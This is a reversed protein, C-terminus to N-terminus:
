TTRAASEGWDRTDQWQMIEQSVEDADRLAISRSWYRAQDLKAIFITPIRKGKDELVDFVRAIRRFSIVQDSDEMLLSHVRRLRETLQGGELTEVTISKRGPWDLHIAVLRIPLLQQLNSSEEFITACIAKDEGFGACLVQLFWDCYDHLESKGEGQDSCRRTPLRGPSNTRGKFDPLTYQLADEVLVWEAAKLNFLERIRQDVNALKKVGKLLGKNPRPCPVTLLDPMNPSPRYGAFRASSLLLYYVALNSNYSLCASELITREHEEAHITIYSDSCIVGVNPPDVIAAQFRGHEITWAQKIILQQPEFASFDTSDKDHTRPDNNKDLKWPDLFLLADKPFNKGLLPRGLITRQERKRNGRIIGRRIQIKDETKYNALTPWRQLWQLLAVDRRGGWMLTTWVVPNDSAEDPNLEHIDYPDIVIRYENDGRGQTPKPIIYTLSEGSPSIPCFMILAAPGIAEPFIDFRLAALNVVEKVQFTEFLRKRLQQAPGTSNFLLTNCSQLVSVRGAPKTLAAAKAMFLSGIDGYSAPWEYRHAWEQAVSSSRLTNKGWPPNGVVVDYQQTDEKTSIGPTDENFFDQAILRRGRLVPFRIQQWYHRPEIEDCMALYLSFSAVRVAHANTDVGFLNNELLSRLNDSGIRRNPHAQKWRYVLRQFTKVLFIGSGCAPDLIKLDWEEGRWPLVGDLIFDVLYGPTYVTGAEPQKVFTEYISSIFELPITDFSYQPWLSYQGSRIELKGEVFESLLALHEPQVAEMEARWEQDRERQDTGKGPFLDGNFRENLYGFLNYTDTHNTLIEGLTSYSESLVGRKYLDTLRSPSLAAYGNLDRRHFLFQIFIVRALLDHVIDLDLKEEDHLKARVIRLNDLLLNDARCESPFRKQYRQIFRGSALELWHLAYSAQDGIAKLQQSGNRFNYRVETIESPLTDGNVERSPQECCTFARLRHPELTLLIPTRSFNWALRHLVALTEIPVPRPFECVLAIPAQTEDAQPDPTLIGVQADRAGTLSVLARGIKEQALAANVAAGAGPPKLIWKEEPWGLEIKTQEFSM